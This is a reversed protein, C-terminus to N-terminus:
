YAKLQVKPSLSYKLDGVLWTPSRLYKGRHRVIAGGIEVGGIELAIDNRDKVARALRHYFIGVIGPALQQGGGTGQSGRQANMIRQAVTSIDVIGLGPQIIELATVVIWCHTPKDIRISINACSLSKNPVIHQCIAIIVRNVCVIWM